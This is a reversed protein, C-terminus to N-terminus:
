RRGSVLEFHKVYEFKSKAMSLTRPRLARLPSSVFSKRLTFYVLRLAAIRGEVFV